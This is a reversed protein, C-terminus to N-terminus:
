EVRDMETPSRELCGSVSQDEIKKQERRRRIRATTDENVQKVRLRAKREAAQVADIRNAVCVATAQVMFQALTLGCSEACATFRAREDDTLLDVPNSTPRPM